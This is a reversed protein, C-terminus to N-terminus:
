VVMMLLEAWVNTAALLRNFHVSWSASLHRAFELFLNQPMCGNGNGNTAAGGAVMPLPDPLLQAHFSQECWQRCITEVIM